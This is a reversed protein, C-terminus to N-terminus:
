LLLNFYIILTYNNKFQKKGVELYMQNYYESLTPGLHIKYTAETTFM